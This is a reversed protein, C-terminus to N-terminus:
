TGKQKSNRKRGKVNATRGSYGKIDRHAWEYAEAAIGTAEEARRKGDAEMAENRKRMDTLIKDGHIRTDARQLRDQIEFETPLEQGMGIVPYPPKDPGQKLFICWDGTLLHRGLTLNEDYQEIVRKARIVDASVDGEPTWIRAESQKVRQMVELTSM